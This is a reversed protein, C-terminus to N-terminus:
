PLLGAIAAAGLQSKPLFGVAPSEAVLEALEEADHTSILVVATAPVAEALARAVDIGSEDDLEVDVLAVDPRTATAAQLAEAHTRARGVVDLGQGALLRAASVLFDDNDDVLLCRLRM